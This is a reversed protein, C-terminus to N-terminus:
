ADKDDEKPLNEPEKTVSTPGLKPVIFKMPTTQPEGQRGAVSEVEIGVASVVPDSVKADDSTVGPGDLATEDGNVFRVCAGVLADYPSQEPEPPNDQVRGLVREIVYTAAQLRTRENAGHKAIMIITKAAAPANEEFLRKGQKATTEGTLEREAVLFAEEEDTIIPGDTVYVTTSGPESSGQANTGDNTVLHLVDKADPAM